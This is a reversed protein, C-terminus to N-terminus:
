HQVDLIWLTHGRAGPLTFVRFPRVNQVGVGIQTMGEFDGALILDRFEPFSPRAPLTFTRRGTDINHANTNLNIEMIKRGRFPVNRGSGDAILADRYKVGWGPLPGRIDVVLRDFCSHRGVRIAEIPGPRLPGAFGRAVTGFRFGTCPHAAIFQRAQLPTFPRPPPPAVANAPMAVAVLAIALGILLSVLLVSRRM